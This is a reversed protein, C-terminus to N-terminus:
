GTLSGMSVHVVMCVLRVLTGAAFKDFEFVGMPGNWVVTKCDNLAAQFTKISDPGIDLGMWGDPIKDASVVQAPPPLCLCPSLMQPPTQPPRCCRSPAPPCACLSARVSAGAAAAAAAAAGGVQTNAEPDFKDAVVVDTPLLLEVGKAKAMEVLKNALELKDEEVLSSGM